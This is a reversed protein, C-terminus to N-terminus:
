MKDQLMMNFKTFTNTNCCRRTDRKVTLVTSSLADEDLRTPETGDEKHEMTVASGDTMKVSKGDRLREFFHM